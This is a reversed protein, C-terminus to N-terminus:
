HGNTTQEIKSRHGFKEFYADQLKIAAEINQALVAVSGGSGGGTLRAGFVGTIKPVLSVIYDAEECSIGMQQYGKHSMLMLQGLAQKDMEGNELLNLFKQSREHEYIPFSAADRVFYSVQPDISTQEDELDGHSIMFDAGKIEKPLLHLFNNEFEEVTLDTLYSINRHSQIIQLGMFAAGRVNTYSMGANDHKVGTNIACFLMDKPIQIPTLVEHPKCIIPLVHGQQGIHVAIQDMIGCPAGVVNNEARQGLLALKLDGIELHFILRMARLTAMELAASSSLGSGIPVESEVDIDLGSVEFDYEDLLVFLCGLIYLSWTPLNHKLWQKSGVIRGRKPLIPTLDFQTTQDGSQIHLIHDSRKSLSVKTYIDLPAEVVLAGSYDAIGGLIDLRAPAIGQSNNEQM